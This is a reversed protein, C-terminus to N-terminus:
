CCRWRWCSHTARARCRLPAPARAAPPPQPVACVPCLAPQRECLQGVRRQPQVHLAIREQQRRRAARHLRGQQSAAAGSSQTGARVQVVAEPPSASAVGGVTRGGKAAHFSSELPRGLLTYLGCLLAATYYPMDGLDVLAAIGIAQMVGAVPLAATLVQREFALVVAPYQMQIFRFQLTLWMGTLAHTAGTMLVLLLSLLLPRGAFSSLVSLTVGAQALLLTGWGQTRTAPPLAPLRNCAPTDSHTAGAGHQWQQQRATVAALMLATRVVTFAGERYQMADMIYWLMTGITFISAVSRGGLAATVLLSPVLAAAVRGNYKFPGPCFRVGGGAASM